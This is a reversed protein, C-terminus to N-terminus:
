RPRSAFPFVSDRRAGTPHGPGPGISSGTLDQRIETEPFFAQAAFAFFVGHPIPRLRKGQLAGQTCQGLINWASGTQKDVFQNNKRRFTLRQGDVEPSFVGVAGANRSDAIRERDMASVMGDQYFAVFRQKGVKGSVLGWRRLQRLPFTKSSSGSALYLVRDKAALRGSPDVPPRGGFEYEAYPSQGYLMSHGTERSLVQGDPSAQRFSSFAVTQSPLLRLRKGTLAGVLCEGTIQQWLSDTARDFFIMDNNRLMGAVGFEHVEGELSRDFVLASNCLPCFSVLFHLDGIQDNVLEHWLLIQLPYARAHGSREFVIVPESDDLWERAAEIDAFRPKTIAPIEDKGSGGQRLEALDISKQELDTKWDGPALQPLAAAAAFGLIVVFRLHNCKVLRLYGEATVKPFNQM